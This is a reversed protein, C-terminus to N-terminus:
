REPGAEPLVDVGAERLLAALEFVPLGVVGSYSGVLSEVFVGGLGQIAYGGAKGAPEGSHWYRRAEDPRIERFGVMTCSMASRTAGDRRVAVGSLVSHRRGSLRALMALADEEGAPKGLVEDEVVVVTDAGVVVQGAAAPVAAAKEAALRIVLDGPSEGARRTEDIDAPVVVFRLGLANLLDRRRPSASALILPLHSM